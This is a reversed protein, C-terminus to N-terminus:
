EMLLGFVGAPSTFPNTIDTKYGLFALVEDGSAGQERLLRGITWRIDAANVRQDIGAEKGTQAVLRHVRELTRRKGAVRGFLPGRGGGEIYDWIEKQLPEALHVKRSKTTGLNRIIVYGRALTFDEVSLNILEAASMGTGLLIRLMLGREGWKKRAAEVFAKM